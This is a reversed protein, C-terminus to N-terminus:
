FSPTKPYKWAGKLCLEIFFFILIADFQHYRISKFIVVEKHIYILVHRCQHSSVEYTQFVLIVFTQKNLEKKYTQKNLNQIWRPDVPGRLGGVSKINSIM